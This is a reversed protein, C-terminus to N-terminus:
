SVVEPTWDRRWRRLDVGISSFVPIGRENAFAVERDAGPSKGRFRFLADCRALLALDYAYWWEVPHPNYFDWLMSLHPVVPVVDLPALSEAWGIARRTNGTPDSSYPGAVYVLPWDTMDLDTMGTM